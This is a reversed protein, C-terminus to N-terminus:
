MRTSHADRIRLLEDLKSVSVSISVGFSQTATSLVNGFKHVLSSLRSSYPPHLLGKLNTGAAAARCLDGGIDRPENACRPNSRTDNLDKDLMRAARHHNGLVGIRCNAVIKFRQCLAPNRVRIRGVPVVGFTIVVHGRMRSAHEGSTRNGHRDAVAFQQEPGPLSNIKPLVPRSRM